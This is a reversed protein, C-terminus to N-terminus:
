KNAEPPANKKGQRLIRQLAGRGGYNLILAILMIEKLEELQDSQEIKTIYAQPDGELTAPPFSGMLVRAEHALEKVDLVNVAESVLIVRESVIERNIQRRCLRQIRAYFENLPISLGEEEYEENSAALNKGTPLPLPQVNIGSRLVAQWGFGVSLALWLSGANNLLRLTMALVLCALVANTVMLLWAGGTRLARGAEEEYTTAVELAAWIVGLLATVVYWEAHVAVLWGWISNLIAWVNIM